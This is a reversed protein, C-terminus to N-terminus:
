NSTQRRTRERDFVDTARGSSQVSVHGDVVAGNQVDISGTRIDGLIIATSGITLHGPLVLSGKVAGFIQMSQGTINGIIVAGNRVNVSGKSEINGEIRAGIVDIEAIKSGGTIEGSVTLCGTCEIDGNLCGDIEASGDVSLNGNVTTGAAIVTIKQGAPPKPPLWSETPRELRSREPAEEAKPAAPSVPRSEENANAGPTVTSILESFAQSFANKKSM